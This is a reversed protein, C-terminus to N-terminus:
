ILGDEEVCEIRGWCFFGCVSVCHGVKERDEEEEDRNTKRLLGHIIERFRVCM